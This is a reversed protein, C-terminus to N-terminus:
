LVGALQQLHLFYACCGCSILLNVVIGGIAIQQKYKKIVLIIYPITCYVMIQMLLSFYSSFPFELAGSSDKMALVSPELSFLGLLVVSGLSWIASIIIGIILIYRTKDNYRLGQTNCLPCVSEDIAIDEKCYPCKTVLEQGCNACVRDDDGVEAGCYPCKNNQM